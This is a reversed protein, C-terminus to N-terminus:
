EAVEVATASLLRTFMQIGLHEARSRSLAKIRFTREAYGEGKMHVTVEYTKFDRLPKDRYPANM